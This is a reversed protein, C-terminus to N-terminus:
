KLAEATKLKIDATQSSNEEVTLSVEGAKSMLLYKRAMREVNYDSLLVREQETLFLKEMQLARTQATYFDIERSNQYIAYQYIGTMFLASVILALSIIRIFNIRIRTKIKPLKHIKTQPEYELPFATKGEKFEIKRAVSYDMMM